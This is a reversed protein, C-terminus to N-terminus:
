KTVHKTVIKLMVDFQAILSIYTALLGDTQAEAIHTSIVSHFGSLTASRPTHFPRSQIGGRRCFFTSDRLNFFPALGGIGSAKYARVLIQIAVLLPKIWFVGLRIRAPGNFVSCGAVVCVM